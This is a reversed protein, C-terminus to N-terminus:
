IDDTEIKKKRTRKHIGKNSDSKKASEKSEKSPTSPEDKKLSEKSDKRLMKRVQQTERYFRLSEEPSISPPLGPPTGGGSKRRAFAIEEQRIRKLEQFRMQKTMKFENGEEDIQMDWDEVNCLLQWLFYFFVPVSVFLSLITAILQPDEWSLEWTAETNPPM